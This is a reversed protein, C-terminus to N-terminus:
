WCYQPTTGIRVTSQQRTPPTGRGGKKGLPMKKRCSKRGCSVGRPPFVVCLGSKIYADDTSSTYTVVWLFGVIYRFVAANITGGASFSSIIVFVMYTYCANYTRARLCRCGARRAPPTRPLGSFWAAMQNKPASTGLNWPVNHSVTCYPIPYPTRRRLLPPGKTAAKNLCYFPTRTLLM